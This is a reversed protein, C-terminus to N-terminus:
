LSPLTNSGFCSSLCLRSSMTRNSITCDHTVVANMRTRGRTNGTASETKATMNGEADYAYTAGPSALLENGVGTTYGTMTRNGGSDYSYSENTQGAPRTVSTLQNAADYGYTALGETNTETRLRGGSDYGYVFSDLPAGGSVQHTLTTVRDASDYALSSAVNTGSGHNVALCMGLAEEVSRPEGAAPPAAPSPVAAFEVWFSASERVQVAGWSRENDICDSM